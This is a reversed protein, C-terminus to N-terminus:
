DRKKYVFVSYDLCKAMDKPMGKPMCKDTIMPLGSCGVLGCLIGWARFCPDAGDYM